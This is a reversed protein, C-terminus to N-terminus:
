SQDDGGLSDLGEKAKEAGQDIRESHEGGTKEDAFDAAKDIGEDVKDGHERNAEAAKDKINDFMSM